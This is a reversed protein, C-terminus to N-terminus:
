LRLNNFYTDIDTLVQSPYAFDYEKHWVVQGNTNSLDVYCDPQTRIFRSLVPRQQDTPPKCLEFGYGMLRINGYSVFQILGASANLTTDINLVSAVERHDIDRQHGTYSMRMLSGDTLLYGALSLQNTTGFAAKIKLNDEKIQQVSFKRDGPIDDDIDHAQQFIKIIDHSQDPQLFIDNNIYEKLTTEDPLNYGLHNFRRLILSWTKHSIGDTNLFKVCNQNNRIFEM